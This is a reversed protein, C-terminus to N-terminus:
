SVWSHGVSSGLGAGLRQLGQVECFVFREVVIPVWSLVALFLVGQGGRRRGPWGM